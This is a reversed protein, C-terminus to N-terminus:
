RLFLSQVGARKRVDETLVDAIDSHVESSSPNAGEGKRRVNDLLEGSSSPCARRRVIGALVESSSPCARRRMNELVEAGAQLTVELETRHGQDQGHQLGHLNWLQLDQVFNNDHGNNHFSLYRWASTLPFEVTATRPCRQQCALHKTCRCTGMTLNEDALDNVDKDHRLPPDKSFWMTWPRLRRHTQAGIALDFRKQRCFGRWGHEDRCGNNFNRLM